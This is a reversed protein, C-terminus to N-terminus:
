GTFAGSTPDFIETTALATGGNHGGAILVRGDALLTASHDARATAMNAAASFTGAAPDYLETQNLTGSGNEGGAILVRGDALRTATHGRREVLMTMSEVPAAAEEASLTHSAPAMQGGTVLTIARNFFKQSISGALSTSSLVSATVAILGLLFAIRITRTSISRSLLTPRNPAM